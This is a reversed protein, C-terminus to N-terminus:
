TEGCIVGRDMKLHFSRCFISIILRVLIVTITIIIVIIIILFFLFCYQLSLVILSNKIESQYTV